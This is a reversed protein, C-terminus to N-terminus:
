NRLQKLLSIFLHKQNGLSGFYQQDLKEILQLANKTLTAGDITLGLTFSRSDRKDKTKAVLEKSVLTKLSKSLTMKDLSTIQVIEAQTPLRNNEQCWLISALIVFQTHNINIPKLIKQIEAHWQNYVAWIQLGM